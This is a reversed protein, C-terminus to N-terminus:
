RVDAAPAPYPNKNTIICRRHRVLEFCMHIEQDSCTSPLPQNLALSMMDCRWWANALNADQKSDMVDTLRRDTKMATDGM